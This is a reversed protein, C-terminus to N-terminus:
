EITNKTCYMKKIGSIYINANRYPSGNLTFGRFFKLISEGNGSLHIHFLEKNKIYSNASLELIVFVEGVRLEVTTNKNLPPPPDYCVSPLQLRPTPVYM